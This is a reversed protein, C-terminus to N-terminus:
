RVIIANRLQLPDAIGRLQELGTGTGRVDVTGYNLLRGLLPQDVGVSEIKEMNMERTYRSIFGRKYIVRRNTVVIETTWQEFWERFLVILALVAVLLALIDILGDMGPLFGKLGEIVGAVVMIVAGPAYIIWHKKGTVLVQEGQQLIRDLYSM